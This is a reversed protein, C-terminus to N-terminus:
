NFQSVQLQNFKTPKCNISNIPSVSEPWIIHLVPFLFHIVVLYVYSNTLINPVLFGLLRGQNRVVADLLGRNKIECFLM